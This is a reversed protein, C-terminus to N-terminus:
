PGFPSFGPGSFSYLRLDHPDRRIPLVEYQWDVKVGLDKSKTLELASVLIGTERSSVLGFEVTFSKLPTVRARSEIFDVLTLAQQPICFGLALREVNPYWTMDDSPTLTQLVANFHSRFSPDNPYLRPDWTPSRLSVTTLSTLNDLTTQFGTGLPMDLDLTVLSCQSRTVLNRFPLDKDTPYLRTEMDGQGYFISLRLSLHSLSPTTISEFMNLIASEFAEGDHGSVELNLRRLHNWQRPYVSGTSSQQGLSTRELLILSLDSLLPCAEALGQLVAVGDVQRTTAVRLTRLRMWQIPISFLVIEDEIGIRLDHLLTASGITRLLPSLPQDPPFLPHKLTGLEYFGELLPLDGESLTQFPELIQPHMYCLSLSLWRRCYGAILKTIGSYNYQLFPRNVPFSDMALSITLPLSGSRALWLKIGEQRAELLPAFVGDDFDRPPSPLFLHISNWLQPTSLAIHRWSRCISTLALPAEAANRTPLHTDPLSRIFVERWVDEPFRRFPSLLKRHQDVFQQLEDRRSQMRSIEADIRRIEEEPERVITNIERLEENSPVYNTDLVGAFKTPLPLSAETSTM